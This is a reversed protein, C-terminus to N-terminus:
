PVGVAGVLQDKDATGPLQRADTGDLRMSWIGGDNPCPPAGDCHAPEKLALALGFVVRSSDGYWAPRRSADARRGIRRQQSGDTRILAVYYNSDGNTSVFAIWQGDPSVEFDLPGPSNPVVGRDAGSADTVCLHLGDRECRYVIRGDAAVSLRGSDSDHADRVHRLAGTRTDVTWMALQEYVVDRPTSRMFVITRSDPMWAAGAQASDDAHGAFVTRWTGTELDAVDLRHDRPMIVYRGDPSWRADWTTELRVKRSTGDPGIEHVGDFRGVLVKVKADPSPAGSPGREAPKSTSLPESTPPAAGPRPAQTTSPRKSGGSPQKGPAGGPSRGDAPSPSAPEPAVSHPVSRRDAGVRTTSPADGGSTVALLAVVTAVATGTLAAGGVRRRHRFRDARRAVESRLDAHASVPMTPEDIRIM